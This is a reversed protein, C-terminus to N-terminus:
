NEHTDTIEIITVAVVTSWDRGGDGKVAPPDDTPAFVLHHPGHLHISIQGAPVAALEECRGPANRLDELCPAAALQTLRAQIRKGVKPGFKRVLAAESNCLKALPQQEFGVEM